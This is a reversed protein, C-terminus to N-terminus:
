ARRASGQRRRLGLLAGRRRAPPPCGDSAVLPRRSVGIGCRLYREDPSAFALYEIPFVQREPYLRQLAPLLDFQAHHWAGDARVDPFEGLAKVAKGDGAGGTLRVAHWAGGMYLYVNVKVEPPIRYDFELHRWDRSPFGRALAYAAM